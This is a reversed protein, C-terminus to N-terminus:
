APGREPCYVDMPGTGNAAGFIHLSKSGTFAYDESVIGDEDTGTTGSWTTWVESSEGIYAGTAYDEFSEELLPDQAFLGGCLLIACSLLFKKM